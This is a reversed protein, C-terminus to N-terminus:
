GQTLQTLATSETKIIQDLPVLGVRDFGASNATKREDYKAQPIDVNTLIHLLHVKKSGTKFNSEM